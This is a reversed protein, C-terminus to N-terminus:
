EHASGVPVLEHNSLVADDLDLIREVDLILVSRDKVTTVGEVYNGNIGVLVKDVPRIATAPIHQFERASDVILAVVREQVKLFILRTQLSHPQRPVGFRTRLSLAPFVRGRSFVVGEVAAATNPVPTVHELMEIHQVESCKLGYASGNVEFIIYSNELSM